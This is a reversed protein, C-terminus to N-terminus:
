WILLKNSMHPAAQPINTCRLILSRRRPTTSLAQKTVVDFLGHHRRCRFGRWRLCWDQRANQQRRNLRMGLQRTMFTLAFFAKATAQLEHANAQGVPYDPCLRPCGSRPRAPERRRRWHCHLFRKQPSVTVRLRSTESFHEFLLESAAGLRRSVTLAVHERNAAKDAFEAACAPVCLACVMDHNEEAWCRRLALVKESVRAMIECGFHLINGVGLDVAVSNWPAGVCFGDVHGSALSEVM